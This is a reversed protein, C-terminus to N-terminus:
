RKPGFKPRSRRRLAAGLLMLPINLMIFTIGMMVLQDHFNQNTSTRQVMANAILFGAGALAVLVGSVSSILGLRRWETEQSQAGSVIEDLDSRLARLEREIESQMM